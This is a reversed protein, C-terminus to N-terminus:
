FYKIIIEWEGEGGTLWISLWEKEIVLNFSYFNHLAGTINYYYCYYCLTVIPYYSIHGVNNFVCLQSGIRRRQLLIALVSWINFHKISDFIILIELPQSQDDDSHYSSIVRLRVPLLYPRIFVTTRRVPVIDTDTAARRGHECDQRHLAGADYPSTASPSWFFLYYLWM